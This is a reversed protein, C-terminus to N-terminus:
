AYKYTTNSGIKTENGYKYGIYKYILKNQKVFSQCSLFYALYFM